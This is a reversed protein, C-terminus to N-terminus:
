VYGTQNQSYWPRLVLPHYHSNQLNCSLTFEASKLNLRCIAACIAQWELM